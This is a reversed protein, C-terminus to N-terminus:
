SEREKAERKIRYDLMDFTANIPRPAITLCVLRLMVFSFKTM